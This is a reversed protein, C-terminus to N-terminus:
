GRSAKAGPNVTVGAAMKLLDEDSIKVNVPVQVSLVWGNPLAVMLMRGGDDQPVLQGKKAGVTLPWAAAGEGGDSGIQFALKFMFGADSEQGPSKFAMGTGDVNDLEMGKPLYEFSLPATVALPTRTLGNAYAIVKDDPINGASIWMPTGDPETWSVVTGPHVKDVPKILKGPRGRVTVDVTPGNLGDTTVDSDIYLMLLPKGNSDGEAVHQIMPYGSYMANPPALGEIVGTPPTFPVTPLTFSPPGLEVTFAPPPTPTPEQSAPTSPADVGPPKTAPGTAAPGGVGSGAPRGGDPLMGSVVPVGAVGLLVAAVGAGAVGVRRRRRLLRSRTHVRGLLGHGDPATDARDSLTDRLLM